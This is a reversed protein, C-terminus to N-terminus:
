YHVVLFLSALSAETNRYSRMDWIHQGLQRAVATTVAPAAAAARSKNNLTHAPHLWLPPTRVSADHWSTTHLMIYTQAHPQLRRADRPLHSSHPDSLVDLSILLLKFDPVTAPLFHVHNLYPSNVWWKSIRKWSGSLLRSREATQWAGVTSTFIVQSWSSRLIRVSWCFSSLPRCILRTM